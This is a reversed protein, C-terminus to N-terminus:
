VYSFDNINLNHITKENKKWKKREKKGPTGEYKHM